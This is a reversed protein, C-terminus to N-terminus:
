YDSIQPTTPPSNQCTYIDQYCKLYLDFSFFWVFDNRSACRGSIQWRNVQRLFKRFSSFELPLTFWPFPGVLSIYSDWSIIFSSRLTAALHKDTMHETWDCFALFESLELLPVVLPHCQAHM